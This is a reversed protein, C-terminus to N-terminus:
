TCLQTSEPTPGIPFGARNILRALKAEHSFKGTFPSYAIAFPTELMRENMRAYSAEFFDIKNYSFTSDCCERIRQLFVHFLLYKLETPGSVVIIAEDPLAVGPNLKTIEPDNWRMVKKDLM